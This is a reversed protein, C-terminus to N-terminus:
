LFIVFHLQLLICTITLGNIASLLLIDYTTLFGSAKLQLNLYTYSKKSGGIM